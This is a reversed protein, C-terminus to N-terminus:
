ELSRSYIKKLSHLCISIIRKGLIAVVQKLVSTKSYFVAISEKYFNLDYSCEKRLIIYSLYLTAVFSLNDKKVKLLTQISIDGDRYLESILLPYEIAFAKFLNYRGKPIKGSPIEDLIKKNDIIYDRNKRVAFLINTHPFLANCHNLGQISDFDSKWFAMGTSWSSWYSLGRIFDDFSNLEKLNEKYRLEGNSFYIIPKTDQYKNVFDILYQLTGKLLKTRHNIFKIFIGSAARYTEIESLFEFAATKKYVINSYHLAYEEMMNKFKKNNGNDMVVVEFLNIDVNQSYISDLVPFIWEIVGNTPICFSILPRVSM